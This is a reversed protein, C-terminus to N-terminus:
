DGPVVRQLALTLPFGTAALLALGYSSSVAAIVVADVLSIAAILIPVLWRARAGALRAVVTLGSVYSTMIAAGILAALTVGGAAAAALCYVLGRCLGMVLPAYRVGKHRFDYLVSAVVLAAGFLWVRRDLPLLLLGAGLLGGGIALVERRDVDGAPIPREPREERDVAADFADNLFMGGTYFLAAAAAVILAPAWDPALSSAMTGALVNSWVTPLNSVRSLLM